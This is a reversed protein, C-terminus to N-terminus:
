REIEFIIKLYEYKSNLLKLIKESFLRLNKAYIPFDKLQQHYFEHIIKRTEEIGNNDCFNRWHISINTLDYIEQDSFKSKDLIDDNYKQIARTLNEFYNAISLSYRCLSILNSTIRSNRTNAAEEFSKWADNWEEKHKGDKDDNMMAVNIIDSLDVDHGRKIKKDFIDKLSAGSLYAGAGFDL